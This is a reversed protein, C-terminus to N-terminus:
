IAFCFCTAENLGSCLSYMQAWMKLNNRSDSTILDNANVLDCFSWCKKFNGTVLFLSSAPFSGLETDLILISFVNCREPILFDICPLFIAAGM